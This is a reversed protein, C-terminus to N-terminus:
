FNVVEAGVVIGGSGAVLRCGLGLLPKTLVVVSKGLKVVSKGSSSSSYMFVFM